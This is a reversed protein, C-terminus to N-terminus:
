FVHVPAARLMQFHSHTIQCDNDCVKFLFHPWCWCGSSGGAGGALLVAQAAGARVVCLFAQRPRWWGPRVSWYVAFGVLTGASEGKSVGTSSPETSLMEVFETRPVWCPQQRWKLQWHKKISGYWDPVGASHCTKSHLKRNSLDAQRHSTNSSQITFCSASPMWGNRFDIPLWSSCCCFIQFHNAQNLAGAPVTHNFLFLM